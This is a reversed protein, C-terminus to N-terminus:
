NAEMEPICINKLRENKGSLMDSMRTMIRKVFIEQKM